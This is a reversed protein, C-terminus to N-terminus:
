NLKDLSLMMLSITKFLSHACYVLSLSSPHPHQQLRKVQSSSLAHEDLKLQAILESRLHISWQAKKGLCLNIESRKLQAIPQCSYIVKLTKNNSSKSLTEQHPLAAQNAQKIFPNLLIFVETATTHLEYLAQNTKTDTQNLDQWLWHLSLFQPGLSHQLAQSLWLSILHAWSLPSLGFEEDNYVTLLQSTETFYHEFVWTQKQKKQQDRELYILDHDAWKLYFYDIGPAAEEGLTVWESYAVDELRGSHGLAQIAGVQTVQQQSFQSQIQHNLRLPNSHYYSLGLRDLAQSLRFYLLRRSAQYLTEFHQVFVSLHSKNHTKYQTSRAPSHILEQALLYTDLHDLDSLPNYRHDNVYDYHELQTQSNFLSSPLVSEHHNILLRLSTLDLPSSLCARRKSEDLASLHDNILEALCYGILIPILDHDIILLKRKATSWLQHLSDLSKWSFACRTLKEQLESSLVESHLLRSLQQHSEPDPSLSLILPFAICAPGWNLGSAQASSLSAVCLQKLKKQLKLNPCALSLYFQWQLLVQQENQAISITM